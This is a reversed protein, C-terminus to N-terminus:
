QANKAGRERRKKADGRSSFFWGGFCQAVTCCRHAFIGCNRDSEWAVGRIAIGRSCMLWFSNETKPYRGKRSSCAHLAVDSWRDDENEHVDGATDEQKRSVLLNEEKVILLGHNIGSRSGSNTVRNWVHRVMCVEMTHIVDCLVIWLGCDVIWLGCDVIWLGCDVIWLGCDVCDV